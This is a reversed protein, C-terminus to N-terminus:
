SRPWATLIDAIFVLGTFALVWYDRSQAASDCIERERIDFLIQGAGFPLKKDLFYGVVCNNWKAIWAEVVDEPPCVVVRAEKVQPPHFSLKM